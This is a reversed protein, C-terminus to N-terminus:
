LVIVFLGEGIDFGKKQNGIPAKSITSKESLFLILLIGM